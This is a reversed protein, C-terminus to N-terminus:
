HLKLNFSFRGLEASPNGSNRGRLTLTYRGPELLRTPILLNLLAGPSAPAPAPVTFFAGSETRIECEFAAYSAGPPLDLSFGAFPASKPVELPQDDGRAVSKLVFSPYARPASVRALEQKLGPIRALEEFSVVFILAGAAVAFVFVPNRWGWSWGRRPAPAPRRSAEEAFVARANAAFIAAEHVAAACEPCSFYHQEFGDREAPALEGLQYREVAQTELAEQHNM